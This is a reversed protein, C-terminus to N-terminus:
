SRGIKGQEMGRLHHSVAAYHVGLFKDRDIDNLFIEQYANGRTTVHYVAGPYEIRLPRVIDCSYILTPNCSM